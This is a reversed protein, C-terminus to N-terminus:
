KKEAPAAAAADGPPPASNAANEAEMAQQELELLRKREAEQQEKEIKALEAAKKQLEAMIKFNEFTEEITALRDQVDLVRQKYDANSGALQLFKNYHGKAVNFVKKTGEEDIGDVTSLHEQNLIGLNYWPRPDKSDIKAAENYSKDADKFKKLGRQAVGLALWAEINKKQGPDRLAIELSKEAQTYDRFRISIFAINLNAQVHNPEVRVAEKFAKLADVQNDRQMLLLGSLNYIAASEQSSEKLVRQAQTIVLNALVLYSQDKRIGRDYYLRALNEYASQNGSDLALVGQISKEAENFLNVDLTKIYKNRSIGAVNNRAARAQLKNAEVGKKFYDLAKDVQGKKWYIVGLNNYALDFKPAKSVIEAYIPEAKDPKGCEDWVAGANFYALAMQVGHTKYVKTFEGATSDCEADSLKGDAKASKYKAVAKEFDAKAEATAKTPDAAAGKPGTVSPGEEGPTTTGKDGKCATLGVALLGITLLKSFNRM